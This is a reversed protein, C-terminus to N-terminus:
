SPERSLIAGSGHGTMGTAVLIHQADPIQRSKDGPSDDARGQIQRTAEIWHGIGHLRGESVQGGFTNVPLEGTLGIRGDQIWEFAEGRGCFGLGELWWYIDPSFGDYLMAGSMDSPRLDTSAWLTRGVNGAVTDVYEEPPLSRWNWGGSGLATVFAPRQRLDGALDARALVIAGAGDIPMDCDFLCLPEAIMRSNMYDAFTLPKGNFVAQPNRAANERMTVAYTAMHERRAGYLKMYRMYAPAFYTPADIVGYPAEYAEPGSARPAPEDTSVVDLPAGSGFAGSRPQWMARWVLAYNCSGAALAHVASAIASSINGYMGGGSSWWDVQEIGLADVMWNLPASSIGEVPGVGPGAGEPFTALGDIDSSTLGADAIAALCADVALAGVPRQLRRGFASQGVGVIAVKNKANFAM